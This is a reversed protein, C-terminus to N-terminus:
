SHRIIGGVSVPGFSGPGPLTGFRPVSPPIDYGILGPFYKNGVGKPLRKKKGLKRLRKVTKKSLSESIRQFLTSPIREMLRLKGMVEDALKDIEEEDRGSLVAHFIEHVVNLLIDQASMFPNVRVENNMSDWVGHGAGGKHGPNRITKGFTMEKRTMPRVPSPFKLKRGVIREIEDLAAPLHRHVERTKEPDFGVLRVRLAGM